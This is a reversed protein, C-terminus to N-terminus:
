IRSFTIMANQIDYEYIHYCCVIHTYKGVKLKLKKAIHKLLNVNAIMDGYACLWADNSRFYDTLCLKNNRVYFQMLVTCPPHNNDTETDIYPDWISVIGKTSYWTQKLLNSVYELQNIKKRGLLDTEIARHYIQRQYKFELAKGYYNQLYEQNPYKLSNQARKSPNTVVLIMNELEISTTDRETVVSEGENVYHDLLAKISAEWAEAITEKIIEM